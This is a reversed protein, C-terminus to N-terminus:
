ISGVHTKIQIPKKRNEFFEWLQLVGRCFMCYLREHRKAKKSAGGCPTGQINCKPCYTQLIRETETKM